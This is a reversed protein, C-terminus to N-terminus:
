KPKAEELIEAQRAAQRSLEDMGRSSLFAAYIRFDQPQNKLVAQWIQRDQTRVALAELIEGLNSGPYNRSINFHAVAQEFKNQLLLFKAYNRHYSGNTKELKIAQRFAREASEFRNRSSEIQALTAWNLSRAPQVRIAQAISQAASDLLERRRPFEFFGRKEAGALCAAAKLYHASDRDPFLRLAQNLREFQSEDPDDTLVFPREATWREELMAARCQRYGGIILVGALVAVTTLVAIGAASFLPIAKEELTFRDARSGRHLHTITIALGAIAAFNLANSPIHLNFDLANHFSLSALSFLAGYGLCRATADKRSTLKPLVQRAFAFGLVLLLVSGALGTELVWELYESEAHTTESGFLGTKYRPYILRFSGLGSGTLAYDPIARLCDNWIQVRYRGATEYVENWRGRGYPSLSLAAIVVAIFLFGAAFIGRMRDSSRDYGGEPKQRRYLMLRLGFLLCGSAFGVVAGRSLSATMAATMAFCAFALIWAKAGEARLLWSARPLSGHAGPSPERRRIEAALAGLGIGLILEMYGGFHNHNAFPGFFTAGASNFRWYIKGNTWISQAIGFLAALTGAAMMSYLTVRCARRTRWLSIGVYFFASYAALKLWEVETEARALSLRPVPRDPLGLDQLAEGAEQILSNAEPSIWSLLSHNLPVLTALPYALVLFLPLAVRTRVLRVEKGLIQIAMWLILLVAAGAQIFYVAYPPVSGFLFPTFTLLLVILAQAALVMANRAQSNM